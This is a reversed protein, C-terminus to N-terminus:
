KNAVNLVVNNSKIQREHKFTDISVISYVLSGATKNYFSM